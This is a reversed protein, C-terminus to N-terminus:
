RACKRSGLKLLRCATAASDLPPWTASTMTATAEIAGTMPPTSRQHLVVSQLSGGTVERHGRLGLLRIGRLLERLQVVLQEILQREDASLNVAYRGNRRRRFPPDFVADFFGM